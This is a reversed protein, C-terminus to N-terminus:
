TVIVIHRSLTRTITKELEHHLKWAVAMADLHETTRSISGSSPDADVVMSAVTHAAFAVLKQSYTRKATRELEQHVTQWSPKLSTPSDVCAQKWIELLNM